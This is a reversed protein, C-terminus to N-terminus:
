GENDQDPERLIYGTGRLTHILKPEFQQDVKGRLYNIYVEILNAKRQSDLDWVHESIMDRTVAINSNRLL